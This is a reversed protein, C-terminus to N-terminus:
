GPIEEFVAFVDNFDTKAKAPINWDILRAYLLSEGNLQDSNTSAYLYFSNDTKSRAVINDFFSKAKADTVGRWKISVTYLPTKSRTLKVTGGDMRPLEDIESSKLVRLDEICEGMDLFNGFYVKSHTFKSSASSEMELWWNAYSSSTSSTLVLDGNSLSETSLSDTAAIPSAQWKDALYQEITQRDTSSLASSYAVIECIYGFFPQAAAAASGINLPLTAAVANNHTGSGNATGDKYYDGTTGSKVWELVTTTNQSVANTSIVSTNAGAQNTRSDQKWTNGVLRTLFGSASLSENSLMTYNTAGSLEGELRVVLFLSAGSTFLNNINTTASITLYDNTGDFHLSRNGSVGMLQPAATTTLYTSDATTRRMQPRTAYIYETGAAAISPPTSDNSSSGLWVGFDPYHVASATIVLDVRYWGSGLSTITKSTLNVGAGNFVGTSIDVSVGHWPADASTGVWAHNHNGAKLDVSMQWTSAAAIRLFRTGANTWTTGHRSTGATALIKAATTAGLYNTTDNDTVTCPYSAKDWASNSMTESYTIANEKNDARSLIPGNTATTAAVASYANSSQDTWTSTNGISNTSVGRTADLWLVLGLIDSPAFASQRSGRLKVSTVDDASLLNAKGVILHDVTGSSEGLDYNSRSLGTKGTQMTALSHRPGAINNIFDQRKITDGWTDTHSYKATRRPIDPYAIKISM